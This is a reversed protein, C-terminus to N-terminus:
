FQNNLKCKAGLPPTKLNKKDQVSYSAMKFYDMELALLKKQEERKLLWM